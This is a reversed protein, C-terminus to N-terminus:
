KGAQLRNIIESIVGKFQELREADGLLHALAISPRRNARTESFQEDHPLVKDLARLTKLREIGDTYPPYKSLYDFPVQVAPHRLYAQITFVTVAKGGVDVRAHFCPSHRGGFEISDAEKKAWYYLDQAILSMEEGENMQAIYAFFNDEGPDPSSDDEAPTAAAVAEPVKNLVDRLRKTLSRFAADYDSTFNTFQRSILHLPLPTPEIMAIFLPKRLDLLMLGEREVWESERAGASMVIVAADCDTVAQEIRQLWRAGDEIGEFDVWVNVGNARWGEALKRVYANDKSSHSIFVFPETV